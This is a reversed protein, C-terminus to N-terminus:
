EQNLEKELALVVDVTPPVNTVARMITYDNEVTM